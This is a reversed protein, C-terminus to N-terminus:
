VQSGSLARGRADGDHCGQRFNAHAKACGGRHCCGKQRRVAALAHASRASDRKTSCWDFSRAPEGRADRFPTCRSAVSAAKASVDLRPGGTSEVATVNEALLTLHMGGWGWTASDPSTDNETYPMFPRRRSTTSATAEDRDFYSPCGISSARIITENSRGNATQGSARWEGGHQTAYRRARLTQGKCVSGGRWADPSAPQMREDKRTAAISRWSNM